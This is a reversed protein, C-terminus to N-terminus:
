AKGEFLNIMKLAAIALGNKHFEKLTQECYEKGKPGNCIQSYCFAINCLAMEKYTMKSASLLRLFRYKDIWQHKSLFDVSKIFLSIANEFKQQKVLKMGQQHYKALMKRILFSLALYTLVCWLVPERFVLFHYVLLILGMFIVQPILYIWAIQKVIPINSAM